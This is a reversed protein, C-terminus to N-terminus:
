LGNRGGRYTAASSAYLFVKKNEACWHFLMQSYYYNNHILADVDTETTSSNRGMHIVAHVSNIIEPRALFAALDEKMVFDKFNRKALNKWRHDHGYNDVCIIDNFGRQNLEWVFASGIFGAAGTVIIM